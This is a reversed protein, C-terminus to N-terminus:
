PTWRGASAGDRSTRMTIQRSVVTLRRRTAEVAGELQKRRSYVELAEDEAAMVAPDIAAMAKAATITKAQVSLACRHQLRSVRTDQEREDVFEGGLLSEAYDCWAALETHLVSLQTGDLATLDHPLEPLEPQVPERIVLGRERLWEEGRERASV